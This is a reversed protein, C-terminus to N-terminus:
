ICVLIHPVTLTLPNIDFIIIHISNYQFPRRISVPRVTTEYALQKRCFIHQNCVPIKHMTYTTPLVFVFIENSICHRINRLYRNVGTKPLHKTSRTYINYVTYIYSSVNFNLTNSGCTGKPLIIGHCSDLLVDFSVYM